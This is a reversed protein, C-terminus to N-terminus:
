KYGEKTLHERHAAFLQDHPFQSDFTIIRKVMHTQPTTGGSAETINAQLQNLLISCVSWLVGREDRSDGILIYGGDCHAPMLVSDYEAARLIAAPNERIEIRKREQIIDELQGLFGNVDGLESIDLNFIDFGLGLKLKRPYEANGTTYIEASEVNINHLYCARTIRELLGRKDIAGIILTAKGNTYTPNFSLYPEGTNRVRLLEPIYLGFNPFRTHFNSDTDGTNEFAHALAQGEQGLNSPNYLGAQNLLKMMQGKYFTIVGDMESDNHGRDAYTALGLIRLMIPDTVTAEFHKRDESEPEAAATLLLKQNSLLFRLIDSTSKTLPYRGSLENALNEDTRGTAKSFGKFTLYLHLPLLYDPNLLRYEDRFFEIAPHMAGNQREALQELNELRERTAGARTTIGKRRHGDEYTANQVRAFGPLLNDLVGTELLISFTRSFGSSSFLDLVEPGPQLYAPADNLFSRPNTSDAIPLGDRQARYLLNYYVKSASENGHPSADKALRLGIEGYEIGGGMRIGDSLKERRIDDAFRHIKRRADILMSLGDEGFQSLFKDVGKRDITNSGLVVNAWARVALVAYTASEVESYRDTKRIRRYVDLSPEAHESGLIYIPILAERTSGIDGEKTHFLTLDDIGQPFRERTHKRKFYNLWHLVYQIKDMNLGVEQRIDNAFQPEGALFRSDIIPAIKNVETNPSTFGMVEAMSNIPVDTAHGPGVVLERMLQYGQRYRSIFPHRKPVGDEIFLGIDDDSKPVLQYRGFSGLALMVHKFDPKELALLFDYFEKWISDYVQTLQVCLDKGTNLGSDNIRAEVESIGSEHIHKLYPWITNDRLSESDAM